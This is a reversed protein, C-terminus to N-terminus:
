GCSKQSWRAPDLPILFTFDEVVELGNRYEPNPDHAVKGGKGVVAHNVLKDGRRAKGGIIHYFDRGYEGSAIPDNGPDTAAITLLLFGRTKAWSTTARHWSDVGPDDKLDFAFNPVEKLPVELLSALCASYCNGVVPGFLTQDIPIM